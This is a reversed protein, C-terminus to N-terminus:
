ANNKEKATCKNLEQDIILFDDIIISPTQHLSPYPPCNFRKSFNYERIRDQLKQSVLLQQDVFYFTSDYLTQGIDYGRQEAMEYLRIIEQYIDSISGYEVSKNTSPQRAVYPFSLEKFKDNRQLGNFSIWM